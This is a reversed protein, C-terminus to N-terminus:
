FALQDVRAMGNLIWGGGGEGGGGSRGHVLNDSPNGLVHIHTAPSILRTKM